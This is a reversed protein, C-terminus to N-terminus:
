YGTQRNILNLLPLGAVYRKFNEEFLHEYRFPPEEKSRATHPSVVLNPIQWARHEIPLPEKNWVDLAAGRIKQLEVCNLLADEDMVQPRGVNVVIANKPLMSFAEADVFGTTEPTQPLAIMLIDTDKLQAKWKEPACWKVHAPMEPPDTKSVAVIACDFAVLRQAIAKGLSGWGLLLVKSGALTHLKERRQWVMDQQNHLIAPLERQMLLTLAIAHEAIEPEYVGRANTIIMEGLHLPINSLIYDMGTSAVQLWKTHKASQLAEALYHNGMVIEASDIKQIADQEDTAYVVEWDHAISQLSSLHRDSPQYLLLLRRKM